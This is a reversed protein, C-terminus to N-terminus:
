SAAKYSKVYGHQNGFNASNKNYIKLLQAVRKLIKAM